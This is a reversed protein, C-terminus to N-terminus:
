AINYYFSPSQSDIIHSHDSSSTNLRVTSLQPCLYQLIFCKDALRQLSPFHATGWLVICYSEREISIYSYKYLMAHKSSKAAKSNDRWVYMDIRACLYRDSGFVISILLGFDRNIAILQKSEKM